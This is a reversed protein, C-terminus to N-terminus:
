ISRFLDTNLAIHGWHSVLWQVRSTKYSYCWPFPVSHGVQNGLPLDPKLYLCPGHQKAEPHLRLLNLIQRDNILFLIVSKVRPLPFLYPGHKVKFARTTIEHFTYHFVLTWISLDISDRRLFFFNNIIVLFINWLHLKSCVLDWDWGENNGSQVGGEGFCVDLLQAYPFSLASVLLFLPWNPLYAQALIGGPPSFSFKPSSWIYPVIWFVLPLDLIHAIPELHPLYTNLTLCLTGSIMLLLGSADTGWIPLVSLLSLPNSIWDRKLM